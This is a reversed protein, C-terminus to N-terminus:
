IYSKVSQYGGIEIWSWLILKNGKQKKKEEQVTLFKAGM